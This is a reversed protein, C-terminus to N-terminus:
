GNSAPAENERLISETRELLLKSSSDPDLKALIRADVAVLPTVGQDNKELANDVWMRLVSAARARVKEALRPDGHDTRAAFFALLPEMFEDRGQRNSLLPGVSSAADRHDAHREWDAPPEVEALASTAPSQRGGFSTFKHVVALNRRYCWTAALRVHFPAVEAFAETTEPLYAGGRPVPGPLSFTFTGVPLTMDAKEGLLTVRISYLEDAFEEAGVLGSIAQFRLKVRTSRDPLVEQHLRRYLVREASTPYLPLTVMFSESVPVGGGGGQPVECATIRDSHLVEIRVRNLPVRKDGSNRVTFDVQPVSRRRWKAHGGAFFTRARGDILTVPQEISLSKWAPPGGGDFASRWASQATHGIPGVIGVLAALFVVLASIAAWTKKSLKALPKM